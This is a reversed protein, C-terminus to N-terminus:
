HIASSRTSLPRERGRASQILGDVSLGAASATAMGVAVTLRSAPSKSDSLVEVLRASIRECVM